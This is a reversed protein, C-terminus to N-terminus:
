LRGELAATPKTLKSLGGRIVNKAARGNEWRFDAVM